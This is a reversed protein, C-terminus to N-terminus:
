KRKASIELMAKASVIKIGKFENLKLLHNDGSVIYDANGDLACELIRNDTPDNTIESIEITPFVLRSVRLLNRLFEVRKDDPYGFKKELVGDVEDLIESSIILELEKGKCKDLVIKENGKWFLASIIVNTDLVARM